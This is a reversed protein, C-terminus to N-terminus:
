EGQLRGLLRRAHDNAPDLELSRRLARTALERAGAAAYAEGLSDHANASGPFVEVVLALVAVAEDLRGAGLLQYGVRNMTEEAFPVLEPDRARAARVRALADDTGGALVREVVLEEAPPPPLAALSRVTVFGAPVVPSRGLALLREGAAADGKVHADLFHRCATVVLEAGLATDGLPEGDFGPALAALMGGSSFDTHRLRPFGLVVRPSYRLSEVLGLDLDPSAAQGLRLYAATFRQPAFHPWRRILPVVDAFGDSGDLSVVADVEPNRCALMLAAAGGFSFGAVALRDRDVEPRELLRGLLWELDQRQTDLGVWGGVMARSTPGFSPSTAVVYGHSALVEALLFNHWASGGFGQGLLVLPFPGPAPSAGRGAAAREELVREVDRPRAGNAQRQAVFRQRQADRAPSGAPVEELEAVALAVYDGFTMPEGPRSPDAPYWVSVQLPRHREGPRLRGDLDRKARFARSRDHALRSEFGVPWPGPEVRGWLASRGPDTQAPWALGLGLVLLLAGRLSSPM